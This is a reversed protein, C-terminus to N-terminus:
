QVEADRDPIMQIPINQLIVQLVQRMADLEARIQGVQELIDELQANTERDIM